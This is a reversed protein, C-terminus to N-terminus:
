GRKGFRTVIEVTRRAGDLAANLRQPRGRAIQAAVAAALAEGTLAAEELVGYGVRERLSEARLTQETEGGEAFPAFVAPAGAMIVDLATNYGCQGVFCAARSLVERFDARTEEVIANNPAGAAVRQARGAGGVLLRWTLHPTLAAAERAADFFRDGVLGGGAAAVVEGAGDGEPAASIPEPAVYGTYFLKRRIATTVPWSAELPTLAPDSHALVGNYKQTVQRETEAIRSPKSPPSLIDRVSALLTPRPTAMFATEILADFEATLARRGFPFLETVVVTPSFASLADCLANCRREMYAATAPADDPALLRRFNVGDSRLPPAQVIEVADAFRSTLHPADVGGSVVRVRWGAAAFARGLELTRSLHGTGLLHTVAFLIKM